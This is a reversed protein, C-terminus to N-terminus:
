APPYDDEFDKFAFNGIEELSYFLMISHFALADDDNTGEDTEGYLLQVDLEIFLM